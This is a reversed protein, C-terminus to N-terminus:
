AIREQDKALDVSNEFVQLGGLREGPSQTILTSEALDRGIHSGMEETDPGMLLGERGILPSKGGGRGEPLGGQLHLHREHLAEGVIVQAIIRPSSIAEAAVYVEQYALPAPGVESQCANRRYKGRVM